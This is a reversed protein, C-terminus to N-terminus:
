DSYNFFLFLTLVIIAIFLSNQSCVIFPAHYVKMIAQQLLHYIPSPSSTLSSELYQFHTIVDNTSDGFSVVDLPSFSNSFFSTWYKSRNLTLHETFEFSWLEPSLGSGSISIQALDSCLHYCFNHSDIFDNMSLLPLFVSGLIPNSPPFCFLVLFSYKFPWCLSWQHFLTTLTAM